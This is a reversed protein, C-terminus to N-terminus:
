VRIMYYIQFIVWAKINPETIWYLPNSIFCYFVILNFHLSDGKIQTYVHEYSNFRTQTVVCKM